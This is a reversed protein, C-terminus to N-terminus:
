VPEGGPAGGGGGETGVGEESQEGDSVVETAACLMRGGTGRVALCAAAQEAHELGDRHEVDLTEGPNQPAVAAGKRGKRNQEDHDSTGLRHGRTRAEAARVVPNM